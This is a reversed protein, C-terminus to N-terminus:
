AQPTTQMQAVLAQAAPTGMRQLEALMSQQEQASMAKPQRQFRNEPALAFFLQDSWANREGDIVLHIRDASGRNAVCHEENANIYWCSGEDMVIRKGALIFEVQPNTIVPIHLRFEGDEYGLCNDRHPKIQAGAALCLLRANLKPFEFHDLVQRFYDCGAMIETELVPLKELPMANIMRSDGGPALLALSTWNGVYDRTNYHAVWDHQLLQQLDAQLRQRDFEFPLKLHAVPGM